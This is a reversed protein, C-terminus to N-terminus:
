QTLLKSATVLIALLLEWSQSRQCDNQGSNNLKEEPMVRLFSAGHFYLVSEDSTSESPNLKWATLLASRLPAVPLDRPFYEPDDLKLGLEKRSEVINLNQPKGM